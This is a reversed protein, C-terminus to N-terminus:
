IQPNFTNRSQEVVEWMRKWFGRFVDTCLHIKEKGIVYDAYRGISIATAGDLTTFSAIKSVVENDLEALYQVMEQKIFDKNINTLRYTRQFAFVLHALYIEVIQDLRDPTWINQNAAVVIESENRRLVTSEPVHQPRTLDPTTPMQIQHEPTTIVEKTEATETPPVNQFEPVFECNGGNLVVLEQKARTVAVYFLRREETEDNGARPLSNYITNVLLIVKEWERGKATHINLIEIEKTGHRLVTKTRNKEDRDGLEEQGIEFGQEQLGSFDLIEDIDNIEGKWNRALVGVKNTDTILLSSLEDLLTENVKTTKQPTTLFKVPIETSNNAHLNKSIRRPNHEILAKAHRVITSTSRYNRTIKYHTVNGRKGFREQMISSDGGRFGYIAQDDDGVAFLSESLLDILRFDIPSIDQFEDAFVYRYKEQYERRLDPNEELMNASYILMDLFDLAEAEKKRNEYKTAFARLIPDTVEDPKFVGTLVQRKEKEIDDKLRDFKDTLNEFKEPSELVEDYPVKFHQCFMEIRLQNSYRTQQPDQRNFVAWDKHKKIEKQIHVSAKILPVEIDIIELTFRQAEEGEITKQINGLDTTYGIYAVSDILSKIKYIVVLINSSKRAVQEMGQILNVVSRNRYYDIWYKERAYAKAGGKVRQIVNFDFYEKGKQQIAERLGHNSSNSFHEKRRREPDTTQGIYCQHTTTDEIKYIYVIADRTEQDLLEKEKRIITQIKKDDWINNPEYDLETEKYHETILDKGFAHLTCITPESDKLDSKRLRDKMEDAAANTFAIALIQEPDINHKHVLNLIREKIVTTKGSGPGAVVLAPGEFHEVARRQNEDLKM